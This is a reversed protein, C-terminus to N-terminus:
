LGRRVAVAARCDAADSCRAYRELWQNLTSASAAVLATGVLANVILVWNEPIGSCAVCAAVWVTLLELLAIKPKTLELVAGIHPVIRTRDHGLALSPLNM